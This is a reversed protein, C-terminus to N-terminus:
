VEPYLRIGDNAQAKSGKELPATMQQPAVYYDPSIGPAMNVREREREREGHWMWGGGFHRQVEKGIFERGRDPCRQSLCGGHFPYCIMTSPAAAGNGGEAVSTFRVV